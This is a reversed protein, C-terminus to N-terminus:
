VLSFQVVEDPFAVQVGIKWEAVFRVEMAEKAYFLEFKEEEGALDTALYLNSYRMAYARNTGNLGPVAVIKYQTGPVTMEGAAQADNSATYAFLNAEILAAIYSEFWDYGMFIAVDDKGRLDAPLTKWLGKVVDRINSETVSTVPSAFHNSGARVIKYPQATVDAAGNAALTLGTASGIADVTGILVYSGGSLAYIKDGVAVETNFLSSQGTVAASGTTSTLTGTGVKANSSAASKAADIIKILGDIKNLNANGSATDGQWLLVENQLAIKDAKRDSYKQAFPIEEPNSGPAMLLQTYKTKLTKPCLSEHVKIPAVNIRRRSIKTTGSPTFGCTGGNQFVADTDLVNIEASSSIGTMSNGKSLIIQQTKSEYISRSVLVDENERTYDNLDTLDFAM